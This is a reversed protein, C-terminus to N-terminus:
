MFSLLIKGADDVTAAEGEVTEEVKETWHLYQSVYFCEFAGYGYKM